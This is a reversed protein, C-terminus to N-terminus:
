RYNYSHTHVTMIGKGFYRAIFVLAVASVGLILSLFKSVVTAREDTMAPRLPKVIDQLIVTTM